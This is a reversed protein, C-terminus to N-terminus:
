RVPKLVFRDAASKGASSRLMAAQQGVTIFYKGSQVNRFIVNTGDEFVYFRTHNNIRDGDAALRFNDDPLIRVLKGNYQNRIIVTPLGGVNGGSEFMFTERSTVRESLCSLVAGDETASFGVYQNRFISKLSFAGTFAFPRDTGDLYVFNKTGMQQQFVRPTGSHVGFTHSAIDIKYSNLNIWGTNFTKSLGPIGVTISGKLSPIFAFSLSYRPSRLLLTYNHSRSRPPNDNAAPLTVPFRVSRSNNFVLERENNTLGAYRWEARVDVSGTMEVAAGFQISGGFYDEDGFETGTLRAPIELRFQAKSAGLPPTFDSGQDFGIDVPTIHIWNVGFAYLKMSYWASANLVFEKGDFIKERPVGITEYFRADGNFPACTIDAYIDYSRDVPGVRTTDAPFATGTFRLPLRLGFGYGAGLSLRYFGVAFNWRRKWKWARGMTFGTLFQAIFPTNGSVSDSNHVAPADAWDAPPLPEPLIRSQIENLPSNSLARSVNYEFGYRGTVPYLLRGNVLAMPEKSITVSDIIEFDGLGNHVAELFSDKGRAAAQVLPHGAPLKKLDNELFKDIVAADKGKLESYKQAKTGRGKLYEGFEPVSAAFGASNTVTVRVSKTVIYSDDTELVAEDTVIGGSIYRAANRAKNKFEDLPLSLERVTDSLPVNKGNGMSLTIGPLEATKIVRRIMGNTRLFTLDSSDDDKEFRTLRENDLATLTSVAVKKSQASLPAPVAAMGTFILLLLLFASSVSCLKLYSRQFFM